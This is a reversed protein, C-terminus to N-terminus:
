QRSAKHLETNGGLKDKDPDLVFNFNGAIINTDDLSAYIENFVDEYFPCSKDDISPRCINLFIFWHKFIKQDLITYQGHDDQITKTYYGQHM